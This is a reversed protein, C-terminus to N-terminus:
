DESAIRAWLGELADCLPIQCSLRSGAERYSSGDLLDGEDQLMPPLRDLFADEVIVHCTACSCCGGCQALIDDLKGPQIVEM